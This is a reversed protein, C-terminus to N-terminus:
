PTEPEPNEHLAFPGPNLPLTPTSPVALEDLVATSLHFIEAVKRMYQAWTELWTPSRSARDHAWQLGAALNPNHGLGQMLDRVEGAYADLDEIFPSYMADPILVGVACRRGEEGRYACRGCRTMSPAGQKVLERAVHDYTEQPTM